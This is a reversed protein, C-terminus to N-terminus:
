NITKYLFPKQWTGKWIELKEDRYHKFLKLKLRYGETVVGKAEAYVLAMSKVDIFSFDVRWRIGATLDVSQQSKIDKIEGARERLLLINYVSFELKSDFGGSRKARFKNSKM